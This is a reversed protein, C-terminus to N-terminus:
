ALGVDIACMIIAAQHPRLCARVEVPGPKGEDVDMEIFVVNKCDTDYNRFRHKSKNKLDSVEDTILKSFDTAGSKSAQDTKDEPDLREYM